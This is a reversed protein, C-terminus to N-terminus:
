TWSEVQVNAKAAETWFGPFSKTVSDMGRLTVRVDHLRGLVAASMALRHDDHADFSFRRARGPTVTLTDGEVSCVLGASKLLECIGALRDSEKHRLIGTRRFTSPAPLKTALVALTPIADPCQESDVDFGRSATGELRDGIRLGVGRLHAAIAEDPHGTGFALREVKM